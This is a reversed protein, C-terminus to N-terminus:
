IAGDDPHHTVSLHSVAVRMSLVPARQSSGIGDVEHDHSGARGTGHEGVPQAGVRGVAHQQELGSSWVVQPVEEHVHGARQTERDAAPEVVPAVLGLGLRVHVAPPQLVGAPLQDPTGAADVGHDELAAM